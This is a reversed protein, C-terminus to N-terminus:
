AADTAERDGALLDDHLERFLALLRDDDVDHEALYEAFLEEPSRGLRPARQGGGEAEAPRVAVEVATPFLERVEDALGARAPEDVRVRLWAGAGDGQRARLEGMSGSITRLPRGATLPQTRVRAPAGPEAEVVLVGKRDDEEGFDLTLPSGAYWTPCPAPIQQTRHLHGLAVYHLAGPFATAPISYEFITHASREGGGMLGGHVMAHAALLNVADGDDVMAAALAEVVLALREAYTASHDAARGAMLDDARVIARQSVFPLLGLNVRQGSRTDFTLVGGDHPPRPEARLTVQGLELLPTVAALRRPNDHNGSVVAVRAGTQALGLLHRYVIAEAEPSPAVTDFLDGVVLVLDVAEDGAIQTIEALVADHEASRSNGRISRGVHWDGTHLLKM